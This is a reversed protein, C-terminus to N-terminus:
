AIGLPAIRERARYLGFSGRAGDREAEATFCVAAADRLVRYDAWPWYLWKKAHKWPHARKFWGDLMGHCYVLYPTPTGRLARWTGLGQYQWLGHVIVASFEHRHARLWPVFDPAYGYGESRRGFVMGAAGDTDAPDLSAITVALGRQRQGAALHRVAEALGGTERRLSRVVHLIRASM